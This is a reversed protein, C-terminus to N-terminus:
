LKLETQNNIQKAQLTEKKVVEKQRKENFLKFQAVIESMKMEFVKGSNTKLTHIVDKSNEIRTTSIINVENGDIIFFPQDFSWMKFEENYIPHTHLVRNDKKPLKM